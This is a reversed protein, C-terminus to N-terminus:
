NYNTLILMNSGDYHNTFEINGIKLVKEKYRSMEKGWGRKICKRKLYVSKNINRFIKKGEKKSLGTGFKFEMKTSDGSKPSITGPVLRIYYLYCSFTSDTDCTAWVDIRVQSRLFSDKFLTAYNAYYSNGVRGETLLVFSDKRSNLSEIVDQYTATSKFPLDYFYQNRISDLVQAEVIRSYMLMMVFLYKWKHKRM